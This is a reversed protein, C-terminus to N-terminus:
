NATAVSWAGDITVRKGGTPATWMLCWENRQDILHEGSDARVAEREVPMRIDKDVHHHLNFDVATSAKFRWRLTQGDVLPMCVEGIKGPAIVLHIPHDNKAALAAAAIGLLALMLPALCRRKPM